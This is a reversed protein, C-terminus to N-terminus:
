ISESLISDNGFFLNAINKIALNNTVFITEDPDIYNDYNIAAALSYLEPDIDLDKRILPNLMSKRFIWCTYLDPNKLLFDLIDKAKPIIYKINELEKLASSPIVIKYDKNEEFIKSGKIILSSADYFKTM